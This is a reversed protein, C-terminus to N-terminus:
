RRTEPKTLLGRITSEFVEYPRAGIVRVGELRSGSVRGVVFSPTGSVGAALAAEFDRKLLADFRSKDRLCDAFVAGDLGIETAFRPFSTDALSQNNLLIAHRMEWGRGQEGACRAARAATTALPHLKDLPFDRTIYRMQGSDIFEQKLRTFTSTQYQRCFPCQLDTFEVMVLPADPLGLSPEDPWIELTVRAEAQPGAASPTPRPSVLLKELLIRIQRLEDLVADTNHQADQANLGQSGGMMAVFVSVAAVFANM